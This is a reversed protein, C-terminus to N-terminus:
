SATSASEAPPSCCRLRLTAKRRDISRCTVLRSAVVVKWSKSEREWTSERPLAELPKGILRAQWKGEFDQRAAGGHDGAAAGLPLKEEPRVRRGVVREDVAQGDGYPAGSDNGPISRMARVGRALTM